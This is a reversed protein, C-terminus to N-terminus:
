YEDILQGFFDIIEEALTEATVESLEGVVKSGFYNCEIGSVTTWCVGGTMVVVSENDSHDVFVEVYYLKGYYFESNRAITQNLFGDTIVTLVGDECKVLYERDLMDVAVKRFLGECM